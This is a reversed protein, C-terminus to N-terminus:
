RYPAAVWFRRFILRKPPFFTEDQSKLAAKPLSGKSSLGHPEDRPEAAHRLAFVARGYFLCQGRYLRRSPRQAASGRLSIRPLLNTMKGMDDTSLMPIAEASAKYPCFADMCSRRERDRQQIFLIGRTGNLDNRINGM